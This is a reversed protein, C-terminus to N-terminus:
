INEGNKYGHMNCVQRCYQWLLVPQFFWVTAERRYWLKREAKDRRVGSQGLVHKFNSIDIYAFRYPHAMYPPAAPLNWAFLPMCIISIFKWVFEPIQLIHYCYELMIYATGSLMLSNEETQYINRNLIKELYLQSKM